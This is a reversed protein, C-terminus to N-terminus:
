PTEFWGLGVNKFDNIIPYKEIYEMYDTDNSNVIIIKGADAAEAAKIGAISDEFIVADRGEIGLVSLARLFIDPFPKGRVTGDNYIIDERRFWKGLNLTKIYFEINEIDSATAIVFPIGEEKLKEFLEVVGAALSSYGLETCLRRYESEKEYTYQKTEGHTLNNGFLDHLIEKNLRGHILKDMEENSLVIGRKKLFNDWALNHLCTDWFLTGNFDFIIGKKKM